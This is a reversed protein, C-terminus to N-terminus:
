SLFMVSQMRAALPHATLREDAEFAPKAAISKAKLSITRNARCGMTRTTIQVVLEAVCFGSTFHCEPVLIVSFCSM